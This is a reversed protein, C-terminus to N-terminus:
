SNLPLFFGKSSAPLKGPSSLSLPNTKNTYEDETTVYEGSLRLFDASSAQSIKMPPGPFPNGLQCGTVVSREHLSLRCATGLWLSPALELKHFITVPYVILWLWLYQKLCTTKNKSAPTWVLSELHSRIKLHSKRGM